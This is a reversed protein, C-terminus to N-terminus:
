SGARPARVARGSEHGELLGALSRCTLPYRGTVLRYLLVGVSYLDSRTTAPEGRLLEPAMYLPTGTVSGAAGKVEKQDLGLGLDMLVIRGGEERMVNAAKIDRHIIGAGLVAALARCLDVGILAAEREVLRGQEELLSELTRGQIFEMWLGVGGGHQQAGYVTMVHTAALRGAVAGVTWAMGSDVDPDCEAPSACLLNRHGTMQEGGDTAPDAVVLAPPVGDLFDGHDITVEQPQAPNRGPSSDPFRHQCSPYPVRSSEPGPIARPRRAAKSM